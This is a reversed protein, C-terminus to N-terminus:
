FVDWLSVKGDKGGVAVWHTRRAKEERRAQVATVAAASSSSGQQLVEREQGGEGGEGKQVEDAEQKVEGDVSGGAKAGDNSNGNHTDTEVQGGGEGGTVGTGVDAFGAAYCGGEHWKLVAVERGGRAAYVRARGDWGATVVVKGDSRWGVGQQGAHGTKVVRLPKLETKWVGRRVPLPHWVLEVGASTSVFM